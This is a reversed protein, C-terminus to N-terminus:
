KVNENFAKLVVAVQARTATGKPELGSGTGTIISHGVAWKMATEAYDSLTNKDEFGDLNGDAKTDYNKYKAYQYMITVMQERTVPDNPGFTTDSYGGVIGNASAWNVADQYWDATLDSFASKKATPKGERAWLVTVFMGRTMGTNPEFTTESTGAFMGNDYVYKVYPCFWDGSHVDDFPMGTNNESGDTKVTGGHYTVIDVGPALHDSLWKVRKVCWEKLNNVYSDWGVTIEYNLQYEGTGLARMTNPAVVYEAALNILGMKTRDMEASQRLVERQRDVNAATDEFAWKYENYVKAVHRMFSAHKGFEQLMTVPEEGTVLYGISDMYWGEANLQVPESVGVLFKHLTRGFAIDYDWAPGAYLKDEGLDKVYMLINGAYCDYTKSVEFMLFMKAWSDLDFYKQYEESDYDLVTDWKEGFWNEIWAQDVGVAAANDGIDDVNLMNHKLPMNHMKPFPFQMERSDPIHDNELVFGNDYNKYDKKPTLMYNGLYEGNMYLDVFQSDLGIGMNSALDFAIKNRMLANDFYNALLSWKKSKTESGKILKVGDKKNYTDDEFITMNYPKKPMEWTSNGRGKMSMFKSKGNVSVSGYCSTEHDRDGNMDAITGLDENINLFMPEVSSSGQITKITISSAGVKYTVSEGAPAVPAKGSEYTVGDKTAVDTNNWCFYLKSSDAKGPLYLTGSGGLLDLDVKVDQELGASVDSRVFLGLDAAGAMTSLEAESDVQAFATVSMLGIMLVVCLVCALVKKLSQDM